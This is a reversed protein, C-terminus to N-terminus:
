STFVFVKALHLSEIGIVMLSVLFHEYLHLVLEFLDFLHVTMSVELESELLLGAGSSPPLFVRGCLKLLLRLSFLLVRSVFRIQILVLRSKVGRLILQPPSLIIVEL